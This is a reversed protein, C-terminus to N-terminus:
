NVRKLEDPRARKRSAKLKQNGFSSSYGLRFTRQSFDFTRRVKFEQEALNTSSIFELSNFVDGINFSIRANNKLRKQIGFNLVGTPEFRQNGNLTATRYFGSLELM